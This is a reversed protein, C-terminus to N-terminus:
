GVFLCECLAFDMKRLPSLLSMHGGFAAQLAGYSGGSASSADVSNTLSGGPESLSFGDSSDETSSIAYASPSAISNHVPLSMSRDFRSLKQHQQQHHQQQQSHHQQSHHHTRLLKEAQTITRQHQGSDMGSIGSDVSARKAM